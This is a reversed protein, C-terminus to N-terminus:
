KLLRPEIWVAHAGKPEDDVDVQIKLRVGDKVPVSVDQINDRTDIPRSAWAQKNDVFVRFTVPAIMERDPPPASDNLAVQAVFTSFKRDLQYTIAAPPEGPPAPHMFIGHPSAKGHVIVRGDVGPPLGKNDKKDKKPFVVKGVPQLETLFTAPGAVEAAGANGPAAKNREADNDEKPLFYLVTGVSALIVAMCVGLTFPLAYRQMWPQRPLRIDLRESTTRGRRVRGTAQRKIQQLREAVEAASQPRDKPNKALLQLVLAALEPPLTPNISQPPPPDDATIAALQDLYNEAEFPLKRTCMRYIVCGLSFLDSLHDAPKGRAQEPSLFAPTGILMGKETIQTSDNVERALGFDLIKIRGSPAEIWLNSPKLDRHVLGAEHIATLGLAIDRALRVIDAVDARETRDIWADLTEGQLLEMALYIVNDVKDAHYLTVLRPHKIAAMARAERLFRSEDKERSKVIEPRMVKLAVPRRLATDEAEFVMGMGGMGLLGLIRYPGLRGVEDKELPPSLFAFDKAPQREPRVGGHIPYTPVDSGLGPTPSPPNGTQNM